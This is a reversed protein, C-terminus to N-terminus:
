PTKIQVTFSEASPKLAATEYLKSGNGPLVIMEFPTADGTLMGEGDRYLTQVQVSLDLSSLNALEIRLKLRGDDTKEVVKNQVAVLKYAAKDLAIVDPGPEVGPWTQVEAPGKWGCAVLGALLAASLLRKVPVDSGM